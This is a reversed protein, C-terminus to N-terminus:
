PLIVLSYLFENSKPHFELGFEFAKKEWVFLFGIEQQALQLHNLEESVLILAVAIVLVM